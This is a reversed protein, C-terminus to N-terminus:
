LLANKWFDGGEFGEPPGPPFIYIGAAAVAIGERDNTNKHFFAAM